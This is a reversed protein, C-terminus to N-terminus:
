NAPDSVQVVGHATRLWQDLELKNSLVTGTLVKVMKWLKMAELNLNHPRLDYPSNSRNPDWSGGGAQLTESRRQDM